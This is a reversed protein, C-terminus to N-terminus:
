FKATLGATITTGLIGANAWAPNYNFGGYTMPDYPAKANFLNKVNIYAEWGSKPLQYTGNLDFDLFGKVKCAVPTVGDLYTTNFGSATTGDSNTCKGPIDGFDTAQLTYGDTYYATLTVSVKQWIFTNEWNARWKPTGSASVNNYPGITGVYRQTGHPTTMNLRTTINGDLVSRYKIGWPLNYRATAGFDFGDTFEKNQNIFGYQIFGLDPKASLDNPDPTNAIVTYGAPEPTGAYYAAIAADLNATNATIVDKKLISYYDVSFSLQPTPDLVFGITFNQSKEPRLGKTGITTEGLSYAQGYGDNNHLALFSAPATATVFGTTPLANSESFSPIRFGTSDTMRLTLWHTPSWRAGFKPSFAHQGTSYDDYRGSLNLDLQKLVPADLEFYAANTRRAGIVGVPNLTYWRNTAGNLDNNASPNSISEFRMSAGLGLQLPGGTLDFLDRTVTAQLMDLKSVSHQINTPAIFDREAQSNKSPDVFNYSGTNVATILNAIYLDGKNIVDLDNEAATGEIDYNWTGWADFQGNLGAIIRSTKSISETTNPIDGFLYNLEAQQGQAAFPNNPNLTGNAATCNVGAACVYVPLPLDGNFSDFVTGASGPTSQQQFSSPLNYFMVDNRYYTASVFGQMNDNFQKTFRGSLSYRKDDPSITRYEKRLDEQCLTTNSTIGTVGYTTAMAPTINVSPLGGCGAAPNILQWTGTPNGSADIPVVEAVRTAVNTGTIALLQGNYQLGNVINNARCTKSGDLASVGCTSSQDDTNYPYGRQRSYLVDDHEYEFGVYANYGDSHLDGSGFLGQVNVMGAGGKVTNGGSVKLLNGQYTKKTVINVVGAIADAGYTSSAGDKLTEIRDTIIDPISNLDVFNRTGDDALPYYATRLGDITVLTSNSTLGRLSVNAAGTAFAGNASFANPLASSGGAALDQIGEQLTTIGRNDLDQATVTTVPNATDKLKHRLISGTVVVEVPQDPTAASGAPPAAAPTAQAAAIGPLALILASATLSSVL